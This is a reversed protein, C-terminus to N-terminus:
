LTDHIKCLSGFMLILTQKPDLSDQLANSFLTHIHEFIKLRESFSFNNLPSTDKSFREPLLFYGCMILCVFTLDGFSADLKKLASLKEILNWPLLPQGSNKNQMELFRYFEKFLNRGGFKELLVIQGPAGSLLESFLKRSPEDLNPLISTLVESEEATSLPSLAVEQVRSILTPLLRKKHPTTLIIYAESPPEELSKLLANSANLNMLHADEIIVVRVDGESPTQHLFHVMDRIQAIGIEPHQTSNETPVAIRMFDSHTGAHLRKSTLNESSINLSDPSTDDNALANYALLFKGLTHAFIRKGIGQSGTILLSNPLCKQAWLGRLFAQQDKHGILHKRIHINYTHEM